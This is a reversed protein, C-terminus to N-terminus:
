QTDTKELEAIKRQITELSKKMVDSQQRLSALENVPKGSMPQPFFGCYGRRWGGGAGYGARRGIGPIWENRAVSPNCFGRRRGTMPGNGMPGTGDFGAM